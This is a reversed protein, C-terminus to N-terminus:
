VASEPLLPLPQLVFLLVAPGLAAPFIAADGQEGGATSYSIYLGSLLLYCVCVRACQGAIETTVTVVPARLATARLGPRM